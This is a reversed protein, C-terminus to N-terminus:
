SKKVSFAYKSALRRVILKNQWIVFTLQLNRHLNTAFYHFTSHKTNTLVRKKNEMTSIQTLVSYCIQTNIDLANVQVKGSNQYM